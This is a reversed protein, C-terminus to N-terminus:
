GDIIVESEYTQLYMKESDIYTEYHDYVIEHNNLIGELKEELSFDKEDTYLEVMLHKVKVYNTNDFIMDNSDAYYFCIFPCPKATEKSWQYYVVPIGVEKLMNNIEIYTM